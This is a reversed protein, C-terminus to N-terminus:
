IANVEHERADIEMPANRYGYRAIQGLYIPLFGSIGNNYEYQHVHRCEHSVLRVTQYGSVIFVAYGLTLGVMGPGLLGTENAAASLEPDNPRPLRDVALIRVYEPAMVGVQRTVGIMKESLPSGAELAHAEQQEAWEVAKPILRPLEAELDMM